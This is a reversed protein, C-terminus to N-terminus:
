YRDDYHDVFDQIIAHIIRADNPYNEDTWLCGDYVKFLDGLIHNIVAQIQWDDHDIPMSQDQLIHQMLTQAQLWKQYGQNIKLFKQHLDVLSRSFHVRQNLFDACLSLEKIFRATDFFASFDFDYKKLDTPQAFECTKLHREQLKAYWDNRLDKPTKNQSFMQALHLKKIDEVDMDNGQVVDPHCRHYINTLLLFDLGPDHKIFVIKDVTVPYPFGFYSYHGHLCMRKQLFAPVVNITHAAGSSQFIDEVIVDINFIYQNIVYSLFHGHTGPSFDITVM